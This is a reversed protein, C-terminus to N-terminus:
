DCGLYLLKMVSNKNGFICLGFFQVSRRCEYQNHNEDDIRIALKFIFKVKM